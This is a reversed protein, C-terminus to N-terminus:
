DNQPTKLKNIIYNYNYHPILCQSCDKVGNNLIQYNGGCNNLCYLPCFCFLCSFNNIDNTEHCPMFECADNRFFNYSM